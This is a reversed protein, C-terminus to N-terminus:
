LGCSRRAVRVERRVGGGPVNFRAVRRERRPNGATSGTGVIPSEGAKEGNSSLARFCVSSSRSSLQVVVAAASRAPFSGWTPGFRGHPSPMSPHIRRRICPGPSKALTVLRRSRPLEAAQGARDDGVGGRRQREASGDALRHGIDRLMRPRYLRRDRDSKLRSSEGNADAVVADAQGLARRSRRSAAAM